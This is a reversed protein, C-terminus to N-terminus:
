PIVDTDFYLILNTEFLFTPADTAWNTFSVQMDAYVSSPVLWLKAGRTSAYYDPADAFDTPNSLNYDNSFPLNSNLNVSGEIVSNTIGSAILTGQQQESHTSNNYYVLSYSVDPNLGQATIKYDFTNGIPKYQVLAWAGGNIWSWDNINKQVLFVYASYEPGPIGQAGMAGTAGVEGQVGQAGTAGTEGQVGQLGQEGTEGTDGKDGKEGPIGQAGTAGTAGTEGRIGQAGQIGVGAAGTAGTAGTNGKEGKDGDDGKEGQIGPVGQLGQIGQIGQQGQIGQDGKDGKLGQIGQGGECSVFLLSTALVMIAIISLWIKKKM